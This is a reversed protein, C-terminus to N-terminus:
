NILRKLLKIGRLLNFHQNQGSECISEMSKNHLPRVDLNLSCSDGM